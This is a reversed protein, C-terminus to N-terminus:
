AATRSGQPWREVADAVSAYDVGSYGEGVGGRYPVNRDRLGHIVLVNLGRGPQCSHTDDIAGEVAAIAAFVGPLDCGLRHSLMAGNSHGVADIRAPDIDYRREMREVLAGIFGVDDVDAAQAYACCNGANWTRVGRLPGPVGDPFVGLMGRDRLAGNLGNDTEFQRGSGSGGHLGVVLPAPTGPSYTSPVFVRYTRMDGDWRLSGTTVTDGARGASRTTIATSSQSTSACGSALAAVAAAVILAWRGRAVDIIGMEGM